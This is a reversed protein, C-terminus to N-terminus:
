TRRRSRLLQRAEPVDPSIGTFMEFAQAAQYLLMSVGDQVPLGASRCADFQPPDEMWYNIDIWVADPPLGTIDLRAVADAAPGTTCNVVLQTQNSRESFAAASLPACSFATEAFHPRLLAASSQGRKVTRNAFCISAAGREACGAAVARAAGGAGLIVAHRGRLSPGFEDEFASVFGFVDTNDGVLQGERRVVTNAAGLRTVRESSEDLQAVADAKFPVTLNAGALAMAGLNLREIELAVYVADVRHQAFWHNHIQPSLSHRVPRGLLGYVATKGTIQTTL